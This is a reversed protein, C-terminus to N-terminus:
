MRNILYGTLEKDTIWERQLGNDHFFAGQTFVLEVNIYFVTGGGCKLDIFLIALTKAYSKLLYLSFINSFIFHENSKYDSIVSFINNM